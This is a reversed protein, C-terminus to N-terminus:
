PHMFEKFVRDLFAHAAREENDDQDDTLADQIMPTAILSVFRAEAESRTRCPRTQHLAGDRHCDVRFQTQGDQSQEILMISESSETFQAIINESM